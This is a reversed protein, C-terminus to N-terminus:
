VDAERCAVSSLEELNGIAREVHSYRAATQSAMVLDTDPQLFDQEAGNACIEDPVNAFSTSLEEHPRDIIVVEHFPAYLSPDVADDCVVRLAELLNAFVIAIV